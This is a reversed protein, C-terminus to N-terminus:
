QGAAIADLTIQRHQHTPTAVFVAQVAKDDLLKKYDTSTAAKPAASQSRKLMPEYTDCIGVVPTGLRGLVALIERGRPGLGIVGCPVQPGANAPPPPDARLEEAGALMALTLAAGRVFDRRNLGDPDAM